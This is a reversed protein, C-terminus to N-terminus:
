VRREPDHADATRVGVTPCPIPGLLPDLPDLTRDQFSSKARRGHSVAILNTSKDMRIPQTCPCDAAALGAKVALVSELHAAAAIRRAM